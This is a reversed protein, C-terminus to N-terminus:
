NCSSTYLSVRVCHNIFEDVSQQNKAINCIRCCRVVNDDTYGKFSDIRDIGITNVEEGCYNCNKTTLYGFFRESLSFEIGRDRANKRLKAYMEIPTQIKKNKKTIYREKRKEAAVEYNNDNWTNFIKKSCDRCYTKKGYKGSKDNNFFRKNKVKGCKKCEIRNPCVQSKSYDWYCKYCCFSSKDKRYNSVSYELGCTKCKKLIM